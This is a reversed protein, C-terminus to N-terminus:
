SADLAECAYKRPSIRYGAWRGVSDRDLTPSVDMAKGTLPITGGLGALGSQFASCDPSGLEYVALHKRETVWPRNLMNVTTPRYRTAAVFPAVSCVEPLHTDDYWDNFRDEVDPSSPDTLVVFVGEPVADFTGHRTRPALYYLARMTADSITDPPPARMTGDAIRRMHEASIKELASGDPVELEYLALYEQAVSRDLGPFARYRTARVYGPIALCDPLHEETYWRNYAGEQGEVPDTFVVLLAKM